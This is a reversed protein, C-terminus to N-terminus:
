NGVMGSWNETSGSEFGDVFLPPVPCDALFLEFNLEPNDGTVDANSHLAVLSGDFSLSTADAVLPSPAFVLLTSTQSPLDFLFVSDQLLAAVRRGDASIVAGASNPQVGFTLQEFRDESRHYVFLEPLGNPNPGLLDESTTFFAITEGDASISAGFQGDSVTDTIQTVLESDVEVVFIERNGDANGGTLDEGSSFVALSGQPNMGFIGAFDTFHSVQDILGTSVDYEFIQDVGAANEGTFDNRSQFLIREGDRTIQPSFSQESSDTIPLFTGRDRDLLVLERNGEPNAGTLSSESEFVVLRGDGSVTPNGDYGPTASLNVMEGTQLHVARAEFPDGDFPGSGSFVMWPSDASLIPSFADSAVTSTFQSVTCEVPEQARGPAALLWGSAAFLAGVTLSLRILGKIM